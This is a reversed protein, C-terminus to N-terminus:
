KIKYNFKLVNGPSVKDGENSIYLNHQNDFAIGEPQNFLGPNLPYVTKVKWDADAVVLMKNSSSLIYWENTVTNKTLASPHFSIRKKDTIKEIEKVNISFGGSQKVTGDAQLALVYVSSTKTTRDDACHKCLVYLLGTKEDAYLGEYEGAPLIDQLKKVNAIEPKKVETFPFTFLVGDSRLLIVQNRCIAIDEYDGKKGFKSTNVQKDGLKFSYVNGDEDQEAFIMDPKGQYFAIGSIETLADPMNYKVPKTLDYGKPSVDENSEVKQACSIVSLIGVSISLVTICRIAQYM